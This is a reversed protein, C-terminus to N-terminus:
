RPTPRSIDRLPLSTGKERRVEGSGSTPEAQPELELVDMRFKAGVASEDPAIPINLYEPPRLESKVPFGAGDELTEREAQVEVAVEGMMLKPLAAIRILGFHLYVGCQSEPAIANEPEDNSVAIKAKPLLVIGSIFDLHLITGDCRELYGIGERM